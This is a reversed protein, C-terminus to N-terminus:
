TPSELFRGRTGARPARESCATMSRRAAGRKTGRSGGTGDPWTRRAGAADAVAGPAAGAAGAHGPLRRGRPEEDTRSFPRASRSRESREAGGAGRTENGQGRGLQTADGLLHRPGSARPGDERADRVGGPRRASVRQELNRLLDGFTDPLPERGSSEFPRGFSSREPCKSGRGGPMCEGCGPRECTPCMLIGRKEFLSVEEQSLVASCHTYREGQATLRTKAM